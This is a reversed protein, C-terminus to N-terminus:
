PAGGLAWTAVCPTLCAGCSADALGGAQDTLTGAFGVAAGTGDRLVTGRITQLVAVACGPSCGSLAAGTSALTVELDDGAHTGLFHDALRRGTCLAATTGRAAFAVTARVQFTTAPLLAAYGGPPDVACSASRLTAELLFTGVTEGPCDREGGAGCGVALAAAALLSPLAPAARVAPRSV